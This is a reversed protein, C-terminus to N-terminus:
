ALRTGQRAIQDLAILGAKSASYAPANPNGEKGAISAINVIRGYNQAIMLRRWRAAATFRARRSQDVASRALRRASLGLNKREPGAIAPMTSWSTSAGSRRLPTTARVSSTPTTPSTSRSRDRCPRAEATRRQRRQWISTATGSRSRRAPISSVNSSRAASAKRAAPSSRM